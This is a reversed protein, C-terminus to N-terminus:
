RAIATQETTTIKRDPKELEPNKVYKDLWAAWRAWLDLLTEKAAPGHDELPVHLASRDQGPREARPVAPHLERTPASTRIALGHYMLLAGTLNNAYLFPSMGLYVHPAEWLDRRESQFGLPTLTRNYAGDGAIGAKFFPTHVMANVTSFAGYSHGGIALRNRDALGRRDLEDIVGGPQEAPRPRLQQEDAGRASSRRTPSSSPTASACSTSCRGPASTRSATRTSRGTRRPRVGGPRRVRAPLVLLPGAAAAGKVHGPPLTVTVRFTFGDAREVTFREAAGQHRGAHLGPEADAARAPQRRGPVRRCRTPSERAIIFKPADPDIIGCHARLRWRQRERLPAAERRQCHRGQRPLDEHRGGAPERRPATGQYFVSSRDASLQVIGGGGGGGGRGGGRGGGGGGGRVMVLSGPNNVQDGGTRYRQLVHRTAPESLNVAFEVTNQGDRETAFLMQMDPSFRHSSLRTASEYIVKKSADDFPPLWQYVRDPRAAPRAGGRQGAPAGAAAQAGRRPRRSPLAAVAV